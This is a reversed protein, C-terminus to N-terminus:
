QVRVVRYYSGSQAGTLLLSDTTGAAFRPAGLNSWARLDSTVQVVLRADGAKVAQAEFRFVIQAGPQLGDYKGFAITQDKVVGAAGGPGAAQLPKLEPSAAFVALAAPDFASATSM